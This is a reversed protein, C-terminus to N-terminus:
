ALSCARPYQDPGFSRPGNSRRRWGPPSSAGGGSKVSRRRLAHPAKRRGAFDFQLAFWRPTSKAEKIRGAM